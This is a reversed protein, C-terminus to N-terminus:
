KSKADEGDRPINYMFKSLEYIIKKNRAASEQWEIKIDQRNVKEVSRRTLSDVGRQLKEFFDPLEKISPVDIVKLDYGPIMSLREKFPTDESTTANLIGRKVASIAGKRNLGLGLYNKLSKNKRWGEEANPISDLIHNGVDALQPLINYGNYDQDIIERVAGIYLTTWYTIKDKSFPKDFTPNGEHDYLFASADQAFAQIFPTPKENKKANELYNKYWYDSKNAGTYERAKEVVKDAM